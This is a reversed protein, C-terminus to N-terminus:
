IDSVKLKQNYSAFTMKVSCWYVLGLLLTVLNVFWGARVAEIEAFCGYVVYNLWPGRESQKCLKTFNVLMDQYYMIVGFGRAALKNTLM